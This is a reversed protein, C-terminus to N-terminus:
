HLARRGVLSRSLRRALRSSERPRDDIQLFPCTADNASNGVIESRSYGLSQSSRLATGTLNLREVSSFCAKFAELDYTPRSKETMSLM